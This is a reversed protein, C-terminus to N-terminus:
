DLHEVLKKCANKYLDVVNPETVWFGFGKGDVVKHVYLEHCMRYFGQGDCKNIMKYEASVGNEEVLKDFEAKIKNYAKRNFITIGNNSFFMYRLEDYLARIYDNLRKFWQMTKRIFAM